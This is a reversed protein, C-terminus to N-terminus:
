RQNEPEDRPRRSLTAALLGVLLLALCCRAFLDGVQSYASGAAGWGVSQVLTTRTFLQTAATIRGTPAIVASVGTNAVRVLAVRNEVARMVAMALLQYPMSTRGFWADNTINVLVEAGAKVARRALDPDISESCILVALRAGNVEFITQERGPSFDRPAEVLRDFFHGLVARIPVYESFPLLELRDYYGAIRGQASVLYARNRMPFDGREIRLAPAGLLIPTNMARAMELVRRRYAQDKTLAAPYADLPQFIFLAATEPWVILDPRARAAAESAQQYFSFIPAQSAPNWKLSQAISGQVMAVILKGGAPARDLQHIRLAGYGLLGALLGAVAAGTLLRRRTTRGPALLEYLAVNVLVILASVGYVGTLEALQILRLERYAAAGLLDWTFAAPACSRLWEVAAWAVPLTLLLPVRVRRSIFGAGVFAAAVFLAGVACLLLLPGVAAAPNWHAFSHFAIAIGYLTAAFFVLGQLWAYGLVRGLPQAHTALLLPVLAVWALLDLGAKPFALALMLGSGASLGLRAAVASPALVMLGREARANM